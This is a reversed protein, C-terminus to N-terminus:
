AENTETAKTYAKGLAQRVRNRWGGNTSYDQAQQFTMGAPMVVEQKDITVTTDETFMPQDGILELMEKNPPFGAIYSSSGTATGTGAKRASKIVKCTASAEGFDQAYWIGDAGDLEGADIIPQVAKKIAKLVKDTVAELKKQM